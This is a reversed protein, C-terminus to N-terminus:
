SRPYREPCNEELWCIRKENRKVQKQLYERLNDALEETELRGKIHKTTKKLAPLHICEVPEPKDDKPM